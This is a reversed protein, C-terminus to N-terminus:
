LVKLPLLCQKKLRLLLFLSSNLIMVAALSKARPIKFVAIRRDKTTVVVLYVVATLSFPSQRSKPPPTEEGSSSTLTSM